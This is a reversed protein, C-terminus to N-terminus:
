RIGWYWVLVVVMTSLHGPLFRVYLPRRPPIYVKLHRIGLYMPERDDVANNDDEKEGPDNGHDDDSCESSVNGLNNKM